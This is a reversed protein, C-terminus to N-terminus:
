LYWRNHYSIVCDTAGTIEFTTTGPGVYLTAYGEKETDLILNNTVGSITVFGTFQETNTYGSVTINTGTVTLTVPSWGGDYLTRIAQVTATGSVTYVADSILWPKCEFEINYDILKGSQQATSEMSIKKGLAEYHRDSRQIYLLSFGSSRSRLVTAAVQIQEKSDHYNEGAVKMQLSILKNKLGAYESLSSDEYAAYHNFIGMDSDISEHQAYGPLIYNNYKVLYREQEGTIYAQAQGYKLGRAIFAQAQGNSTLIKKIYAQVQGTNIGSRIVAQAQGFAISRAIYGQAQGHKRNVAKVMARAQGHRMFGRRIYGQAQGYFSRTAKIRGQAQGYGVTKIIFAQAQGSPTTTTILAQAQGQAFPTAIYARAQGSNSSQKRIAAQAQALKWVTKWIHAQTQGSTSYTQEILTQAQGYINKIASDILANSQGSSFSPAKIFGEAQASATVRIKIYAQTQAHSSRKLIIKARAQAVRNTTKLIDAQAQGTQKSQNIQTRAQAFARTTKLIDARAQGYGASKIIVARTQAHKNVGFANIKAKAQGSALRRVVMAQAQGHKNLTAKIDAQAQAHPLVPEASLVNWNDLTLINPLTESVTRAFFQVYGSVNPGSLILEAMWDPEPGSINWVKGRLVGGSVTYKLVYTENGVLPFATSSSEEFNGGVNAYLSFRTLGAVEEFFIGVNDNFNNTVGGILELYFSSYLPSTNDYSFEISAEHDLVSVPNEIWVNAGLVTWVIRATFGNVEISGWGTPAILQDAEILEYTPGIDPTGLVGVDENRSFTDLLRLTQISARAQGYGVSKRIFTQAQGHAFYTQLIDAQAQGHQSVNTLITGQSQGQQFNTGGIFGQAQAHQYYTTKIDGQAQGHVNNTKKIDAQSQAHAYSSTIGPDYSILIEIVDQSVLVKGADSILVEIVDQTVAAGVATDPTAPVSILVEIIDQSVLVNRTDSILAEIVNQSVRVNGQDSILAEIVDQTVAAGVISDPTAPLSILAEVVDQSVRVNPQKPM